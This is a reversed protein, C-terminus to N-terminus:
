ARSNAEKLSSDFLSVLESHSLVGYPTSAESSTPIIAICSQRGPEAGGKMQAEWCWLFLQNGIEYWPSCKFSELRRSVGGVNDEGKEGEEGREM